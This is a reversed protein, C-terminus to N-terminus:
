GSQPVLRYDFMVILPEADALPVELMESGGAHRLFGACLAGIESGAPLSYGLAEIDRAVEDTDFDLYRNRKAIPEGEVLQRVCLMRVAMPRSEPDHYASGAILGALVNAPPVPIRCCLFLSSQHELDELMFHLAHHAAAARGEFCLADGPVQEEYRAQLAGGTGAAIELSGRIISGRAARSWAPSYVAYRGQLLDGLSFAAASALADPSQGAALDYRAALLQRFEDLPCDALFQGSRGLDLLRAWDNFVSSSRPQARGAIWKYSNALQFLTQPNIEYFRACLEKRTVCGLALATLRLKEAFQDAM